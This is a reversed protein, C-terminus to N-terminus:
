YFYNELYIKDGLDVSVAKELETLVSGKALALSNTQKNTVSECGIM